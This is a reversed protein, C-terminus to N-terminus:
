TVPALYHIVALVGSNVQVGPDPGTIVNSVTIPWRADLAADHLEYRFGHLTVGEARDGLVILSVTDGARGPVVLHDCVLYVTARPNEFRIGIGQEALRAASFLNALTHDLRDGIGGWVAIEAAGQQRALQLALQTDTFEKEAPHVHFVAGSGELEERCARDLSDMDGVVWHPNIGLRIAQIAGGDVGIVRDFSEVRGLYWDLRGYDGNSMILCNM